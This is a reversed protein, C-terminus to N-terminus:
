AETVLLDPSVVHIRVSWTKENIQIIIQKLNFLQSMKSAIKTTTGSQLQFFVHSETKIESLM